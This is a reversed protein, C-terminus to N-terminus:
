VQSADSFRTDIIDKICYHNNEARRVMIFTLDPNIASLWGKTMSLCLEDCYDVGAEKFVNYLPCFTKEERMHGESMKTVKMTIGFPVVFLSMMTIAANVDDGLQYEKKIEEAIKRGLEFQTKKIVERYSPGCQKEIAKLSSTYGELLYAIADDHKKLCPAKAAVRPTRTAIFKVLTHKM